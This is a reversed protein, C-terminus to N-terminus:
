RNCEKPPGDDNWDILKASPTAVPIKNGNLVGQGSLLNLDCTSTAKPDLTDRSNFTVGAVVFENKRYVITLVQSWRSRGVSDNASKLLLAGKDTVHLSPQTGWMSGRWAANKKQLALVRQTEGNKDTNSLYIYLNAEDDDDDSDAEVLVARDFGGDGNWDATVVSLVSDPAIREPLSQLGSQAHATSAVAAMMMAMIYKM